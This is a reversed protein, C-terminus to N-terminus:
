QFPPATFHSNIESLGSLLAAMADPQSLSVTLRDFRAYKDAGWLKEAAMQLLIAHVSVKVATVAIRDSDSFDKLGHISPNRTNLWLPLRSLAGIAKVGDSGAGKGM